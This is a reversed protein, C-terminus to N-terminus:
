SAAKERALLVRKREIGWRYGGLGGDARLVRHCPIFLAVPNAACASAVARVARPRGVAAAVESYTRVEGRPITRLYNWVDMRLATSRIDLPLDLDASRRGPGPGSLHDRLARIWLELDGSYPPAVENREAQPFERALRSVLAERSAGLSVSCVGRDTAAVLITGVGTLHPALEPLEFVAFSMAVGEGGRRYDRPTMGLRVSADYARSSSGFGVDYIADTVSPAERLRGKFSELRVSEAYAKPSMGVAAAFTRQLHTPSLRFHRSLAALTTPEGQEVRARIWACWRTARESLRAPPHTPPNMLPRSPQSPHSQFNSPSVLALANV